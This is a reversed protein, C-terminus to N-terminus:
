KAGIFITKDGKALFIMDRQAEIRAVTLLADCYVKSAKELAARASALLKLVEEDSAATM